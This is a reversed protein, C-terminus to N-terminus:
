KKPPNWPEKIDVGKILQNEGPVMKALHREFEQRIEAIVEPHKRSVDFQESPDHELHYLLPSAHRQEKGGYAPKTFFHAKFPGKRVAYLKAGRYYFMVNRGSTGTGFMVPAINVGDLVRDTPVDVGALALVTPFIDLTSAMDSITQGAKIRGPWWTVFPERMGGEWTSGKGDRLLGASGGHLKKILWPGNDSTFMVLTNEALDEVRLTRLIQGVSWDLEEVVDGYLGRRSKGDFDKSAFLPVHPFTHAFYLFFPKNRNEKIFSIARETYRKTLTIQNAPREIVQEKEILPVNWYEVKPNRDPHRPAFPAQDMDNSYPLGLYYDFGNQTPLYQPQHGLHWKGICCTAYGATKLAEAITIEQEPLGGTSAPFLVRVQDDCMGSRVPLRGTLIAARSPTCVCAASYFNTWKQGERAMRDINPTHITPHGYCGPDGYGLDDCFIVIFNPGKPRAGDGGFAFRSLALSAAAGGMVSLFDRRNLDEKAKM